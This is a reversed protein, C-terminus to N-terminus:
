CAWIDAEKGRPYRPDYYALLGPRNCEPGESPARFPSGLSGLEHAESFAAGVYKKSSWVQL